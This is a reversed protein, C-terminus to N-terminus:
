KKELPAFVCKTKFFDDAGELLYAVGADPYAFVKVTTLLDAGDVRSRTSLLPKRGFRSEIKEPTLESVSAPVLAYWLKDGQFVLRAVRSVAEPHHYELVRVEAVERKMARAREHLDHISDPSPFGILLDMEGAIVWARYDAHPKGIRRLAEDPTMGPKVTAFLAPNFDANLKQGVAPTEGKRSEKVESATTEASFSVSPAVLSAAVVLIHVRIRM